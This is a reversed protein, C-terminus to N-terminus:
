SSITVTAKRCDCGSAQTGILIGAATANVPRYELLDHMRYTFSRNSYVTESSPKSNRWALGWASSNLAM